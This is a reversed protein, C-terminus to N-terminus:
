RRDADACESAAADGGDQAEAAEAEAEGEGEAEAEGEEGDAAEPRAKAGRREPMVRMLAQQWELGSAVHVLIEVVHNVALVRRQSMNLHEDIPLRATAVGASVAQQHTLGKHRNHDVLGGVVQSLVPTDIM